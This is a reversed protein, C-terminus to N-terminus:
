RRVRGATSPAAPLMGEAEGAWPVAGALAATGAGMRRKWDHTWSMFGIGTCVVLTWRKLLVMEGQRRLGESLKVHAVNHKKSWLSLFYIM